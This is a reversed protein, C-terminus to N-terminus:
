SEVRSSTHKISSFIVSDVVGVIVRLLSKALHVQIENKLLLYLGSGQAYKSFTM